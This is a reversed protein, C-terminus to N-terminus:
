IDSPAPLDGIDATLPDFLIRRGEHWIELRDPKLQKWVVAGIRSVHESDGTGYSKVKVVFTFQQDADQAV